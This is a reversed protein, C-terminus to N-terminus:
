KSCFQKFDSNDGTFIDEAVKNCESLMLQQWPDTSSSGKQEWASAFGSSLTDKSRAAFASYVTGFDTKQNILTKGKDLKDGNNIFCLKKFEELHDIDKSPSDYAKQCAQKHKLKADNENEKISYVEALPQYKPAASLGKLKTFKKNWLDSHETKKPDLIALRYKERMTEVKTKHFHIYALTTGSAGLGAVVSSGLILSKGM